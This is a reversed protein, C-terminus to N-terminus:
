THFKLGPPYHSPINPQPRENPKLETEEVESEEWTLQNGVDVKQRSVKVKAM